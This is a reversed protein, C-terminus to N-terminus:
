TCVFVVGTTAGFRTKAHQRMWRKAEAFTGVPAWFCEDPNTVDPNRKTSFAWSGYGRPARGHTAIYEGADFEIAM